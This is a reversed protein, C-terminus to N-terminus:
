RASRPGVAVAGVARKVAGRRGGGRCLRLSVRRIGSVDPCLRFAADNLSSGPRGLIRILDPGRATVFAPRTEGRLRPGGGLKGKRNRADNGLRGERDARAPEVIPAKNFEVKTVSDAHQQFKEVCIPTLVDVIASDARDAALREATSGLMWGMSSFGVVSIAVAGAAAGWLAPKVGPHFKM